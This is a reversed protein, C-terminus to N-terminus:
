PPYGGTPLSFVVPVTVCWRGCRMSPPFGEGARSKEVLSLASLERRM